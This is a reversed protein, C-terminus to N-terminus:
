EHRMGYGNIDFETAQYAMEPGASSIIRLGVWSDINERVSGPLIITSRPYEVM